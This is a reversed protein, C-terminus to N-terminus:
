NKMKRCVSVKKTRRISKKNEKTEKDTLDMVVAVTDKFVQRNGM